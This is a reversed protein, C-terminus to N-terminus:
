TTSRCSRMETYPDGGTQCQKSGISGAIVREIGKCAQPSLFTHTASILPHVFGWTNSTDFELKAGLDAWNAPDVCVYEFRGGSTEYTAGVDHLKQEVNSRYDLGEDWPEAQAAATVTLAAVAVAIFGLQRRWRYLRVQM